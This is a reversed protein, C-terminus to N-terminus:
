KEIGNWDFEAKNKRIKEKMKQVYPADNQATQIDKATM